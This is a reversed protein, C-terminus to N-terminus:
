QIIAEWGAAYKWSAFHYKYNLTWIHINWVQNYLKVQDATNSILNTKLGSYHSRYDM